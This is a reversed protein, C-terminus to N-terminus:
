NFFNYATASARDINWGLNLLNLTMEAMTKSESFAQTAQKYELKTLTKM